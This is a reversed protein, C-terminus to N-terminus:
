YSFFLLTQTAKLVEFLLIQSKGLGAAMKQSNLTDLSPANGASPLYSVGIDQNGRANSGKPHEAAGGM